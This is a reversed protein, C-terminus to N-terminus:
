RRTSPPAPDVARRHDAEGAHRHSRRHPGRGRVRGTAAGALARRGLALRPLRAVALYEILSARSWQLSFPSFLFLALTVVGATRGGVHRVLGWLLLASLLFCALSTTRMAVDPSLGWSMAAAGLAQFLPFEFPVEFPAGFVPLKPHLLDVGHEHYLVATYATQTERFGHHGVLPQGLTPLRVVVAILLLAAVAAAERRRGSRGRTPHRCPPGDASGM